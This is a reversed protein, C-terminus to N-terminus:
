LQIAYGLLLVSIEIYQPIDPTAKLYRSLFEIHQFYDSIEDVLYRM